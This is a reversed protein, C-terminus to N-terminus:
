DSQPRDQEQHPVHRPGALVRYTDQPAGEVAAGPPLHYTVDDTVLDAYHMDVPELRKEENVFPAHGRTEFFLGPLLLRKSTATGLTGTVKVIAM